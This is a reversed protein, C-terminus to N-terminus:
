NKELQAEFEAVKADSRSKYVKKPQQYSFGCHALLRTYSGLSQYVVGYWRQLGRAFDAVTWFQGDTADYGFLQGPSCTHLRSRVDTLQAPTLRARNCGVRKDSLGDVCNASYIRCWNM